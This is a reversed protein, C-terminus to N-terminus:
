PTQVGIRRAEALKQSGTLGEFTKSQNTLGTKNTIEPGKKDGAIFMEAHTKNEAFHKILGAVTQPQGAVLMEQDGEFVKVAYAGDEGAVPKLYNPLVFNAMSNLGFEDRAKQIESQVMTAATQLKLKENETKLADMPEAYSQKIQEIETKHTAILTNIDEPRKSEILQAIEEPSKGISDFQSVKAKLENLEAHKKDLETKKAEFQRQLNFALKAAEDPAMDFYYLKTDTNQVYETKLSEELADYASQDLVALKPM